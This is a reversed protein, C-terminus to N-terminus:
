RASSDIIDGAELLGRWLPIRKASMLSIAADLKALALGALVPDDSCICIANSHQRRFTEALINSTCVVMYATGSFECPFLRSFEDDTLMTDWTELRNGPAGLDSLLPTRGKWHAVVIVNEHRSAACAIDSVTAHMVVAIGRKAFTQLKREIFGAERSFASWAAHADGRFRTESVFRVFDGCPMQAARDFWESQSLPICCLLALNPSM